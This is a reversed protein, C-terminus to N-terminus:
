GEGMEGVVEEWGEGSVRVERLGEGCLGGSVGVGLSSYCRGWESRAGICEAGGCV